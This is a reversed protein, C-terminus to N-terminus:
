GAIRRRRGDGDLVRALALALVLGVALAVAGSRVRDPGKTRTASSASLFEADTVGLPRLRDLEAEVRRYQPTGPALEDLRASLLRIRAEVRRTGLEWATLESAYANAVSALELDTPASVVVDVDHDGPRALLQVDPDRLGLGLAASAPRLRGNLTQQIGAGPETRTLTFHAVAEYRTAARTSFLVAAGVSLLVIAVTVRWHTLL